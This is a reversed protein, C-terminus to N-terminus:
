APPVARGRDGLYMRLMWAVLALALVFFVMFLAFVTWQPQVPITAPDFEGDLVILRLQHRTIVMGLLSVFLLIGGMTLKKKFVMHLAGLSLVFSVTLVWIASSRMFPGLYDGLSVLYAVGLAMAAVAGWLFGNRGMRFVADGNRGFVCVFYGGVCVAGTVMHLWRLLWAGVDTNVVLGSQNNAYLMTYLEPREAMSFVSSYVFSVFALLLAAVALLGPLRGPRKEGTFAAGYLLYYGVIVAFIISLWLWASVISASYVQQYYVLQAFLLPAVGLTVTAAMATPFLKVISRVAPDSWKNEMRGTLLVVLGGFVFNMAALHLTLTLVHLITILWLPAPLFNYDPLNM